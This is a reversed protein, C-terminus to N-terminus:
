GGCGARSVLSSQYLLLSPDVSLLQLIIQFYETLYFLINTWLSGRLTNPKPGSQSSDSHTTHCINSWQKHSNDLILYHLQQTVWHGNKTVDLAWFPSMKLISKHAQHLHGWVTAAYTAPRDIRIRQLHQQTVQCRDLGWYIWLRLIKGTLGEYNEVISRIESPNSM